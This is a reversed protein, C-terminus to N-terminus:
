NNNNTKGPGNELFDEVELYCEINLIDDKIKAIRSEFDKITKDPNSDLSFEKSTLSLNSIENRYQDLENQLKNLKQETKIINIEINNM